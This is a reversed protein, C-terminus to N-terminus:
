DTDPNPKAHMQKSRALVKQCQKAIIEMLKRADTCTFTPKDEDQENDTALTGKIAESVESFDKVSLGSDCAYKEVFEHITADVIAHVQM